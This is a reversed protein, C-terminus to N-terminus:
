LKALAKFSRNNAKKASIPMKNKNNKVTKKLKYRKWLNFTKKEKIQGFSIPIFNKLFFDDSYFKQESFVIILFYFLELSFSAYIFKLLVKATQSSICHVNCMSPYISLM